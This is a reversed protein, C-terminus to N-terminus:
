PTVFPAPVFGWSAAESAIKTYSEDLFLQDRLGMNENHLQNIRNETADFNPDSFYVNITLYQLVFYLTLCILILFVLIANERTFKM